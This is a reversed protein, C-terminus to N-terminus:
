LWPHTADPVPSVLVGTLANERHLIRLERDVKTVYLNGYPRERCGPADRRLVKRRGEETKNANIPSSGSSM